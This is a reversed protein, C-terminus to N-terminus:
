QSRSRPKVTLCQGLMEDLVAAEAPAVDPELQMQLPRADHRSRRALFHDEISATRQVMVEERVQAFPIVPKPRVSTGEWAICYAREPYRTEVEAM